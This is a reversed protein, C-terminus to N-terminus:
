YNGVFFVGLIDLFVNKKKAFEKNQGTRPEGSVVVVM